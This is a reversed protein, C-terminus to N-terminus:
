GGVDIETSPNCRLNRSPLNSVGLLRAGPDEYQQTEQPWQLGAGHLRFYAMNVWSPVEFIGTWGLSCYQQVHGDQATHITPRGSHQCGFRLTHSATLALWARRRSGNGRLSSCSRSVVSAAHKGDYVAIYESSLLVAPWSVCAFIIGVIM